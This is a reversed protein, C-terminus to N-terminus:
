FHRGVHAGCTMKVGGIGGREEDGREEDRMGPTARNPPCQELSRAKHMSGEEGLEAVV